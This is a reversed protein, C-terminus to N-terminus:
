VIAIVAFEMEYEAVTKPDFADLWQQALIKCMYAYPDPVYPACLALDLTCKEKIYLGDEMILPKCKKHSDVGCNKSFCWQIGKKVVPDLCRPPNFGQPSEWDCKSSHSSGCRQGFGGRSGGRDYALTCSASVVYSVAPWPNSFNGLEGPLEFGSMDSLAQTAPTASLTIDSLLSAFKGVLAPDPTSDSHPATAAM